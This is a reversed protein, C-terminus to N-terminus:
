RKEAIYLTSVGFTLKKYSVNKYGTEELMKKFSESDPFTRISEVFYKYPEDDGTILKGVKPIINFSYFDYLKKLMENEVQNFELCLFKGGKKLLRFSEEVGKKLDTFNRIGYAITYYDFSDSDFKSKEGNDEAWSIEEGIVNKDIANKKGVELMQANFDAVTIAFDDSYKKLKKYMRFAVDGTGGAMDLIKLDKQSNVHRVLEDKWIRHIGFSMFDNMVDYKSAVSSFVEGVLGGKLNEAVQKFGFDVKKM